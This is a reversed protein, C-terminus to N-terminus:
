MEENAALKKVGHLFGRTSPSQARSVSFLLTSPKQTRVAATTGTLTVGALDLTSGSTLIATDGKIRLGTATVSSDTVSLAVGKGRIDGQDMVVRSREIVVAAATIDTLHVDRCDTIEIHAYSGSFTKGTEGSCLGIREGTGDLPPPSDSERADLADLVARNFLRPQDFMPVHGAQPIVRLRARPLLAELLLGTRLPTVTDDDGWLIATPATVQELLPSFDEQVLALAAIKAPDGGLISSRLTENGLLFDLDLPPAPLRGLVGGMLGKLDIPGPLDPIKPGLLEKTYVARHLIGAVDALILRNLKAPYSAAYHLAIAGGLSHGVVTVPGTTYRDVVWQLFAAYQGPSYLANRKESRGFGPLDFAVVHYSRALEPLLHQWTGSGLDGLGHVLVVNNTHQRGAELIYVEGKFIPEYIRYERVAPRAPVTDPDPQSAMGRGIGALLLLLLMASSRSLLRTPTM